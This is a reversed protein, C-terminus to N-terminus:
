WCNDNGAESTKQGMSSLALWGCYTDDAQNGQPTATLVVGDTLGDDTAQATITYNNGETNVSSASYGLSTLDSVYTNKESFYREQRQMIELLQSKADMRHAKLMHERYSSFAMSSLIGVITVVVLIEILTFGNQKLNNKKM